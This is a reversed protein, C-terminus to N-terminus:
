ERMRRAHEKWEVGDLRELGQAILKITKLTPKNKGKIIKSIYSHDIGTIDGFERHSCCNEELCEALYGGLSSPPSPFPILNNEM